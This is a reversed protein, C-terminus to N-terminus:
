PRRRLDLQLMQLKEFPLRLMLGKFDTGAYPDVTTANRARGGKSQEASLRVGWGTQDDAFLGYDDV